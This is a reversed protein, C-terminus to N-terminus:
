PQRGLAKFLAARMEAVHGHLNKLTERMVADNVSRVEQSNLFDTLRSLQVLLRAIDQEAAAPRRSQRPIEIAFVAQTIFASTSLGSRAVRDHFEARLGKPPRYSIPAERKKDKKKGSM